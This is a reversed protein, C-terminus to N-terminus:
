KVGECLRVLGWSIVFFGYVGLIYFFDMIAVVERFSRLRLSM